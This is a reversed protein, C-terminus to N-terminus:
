FVPVGTVAFLGLKFVTMVGTVALSVGASRMIQKGMGDPKKTEVTKIAVPVGNVTKVSPEEVKEVKKEPWWWAEAQTPAFCLMLVLVLAKM